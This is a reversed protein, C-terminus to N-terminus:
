FNFIRGKDRADQNSIFFPASKKPETEGNSEAPITNPPLVFGDIPWPASLRGLNCESRFFPLVDLQTTEKKIM